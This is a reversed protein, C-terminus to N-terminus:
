AAKRHAARNQRLRRHGRPDEELGAHYRATSFVPGTGRMPCKIYATIKIPLAGATEIVHCHKGGVCRTGEYPCHYVCAGQEQSHPDKTHM